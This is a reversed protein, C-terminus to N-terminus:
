ERPTSVSSVRRRAKAVCSKVWRSWVKRSGTAYIRTWLDAAERTADEILQADVGRKKLAEALRATPSFVFLAEDRRLGESVYSKLLAQYGSLGKHPAIIKLSEVVDVPVRLTISTMPRDKQLRTKIKEPIM